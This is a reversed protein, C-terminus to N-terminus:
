QSKPGKERFFVEDEEIEEFVEKEEEEGGEDGDDDYSASNKKPVDQWNDEDGDEEKYLPTRPAKKPQEDTIMSDLKVELAANKDSSNKNTKKAM